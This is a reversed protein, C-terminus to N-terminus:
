RVILIKDYLKAMLFNKRAEENVLFKGEGQSQPGTSAALRDGLGAAEQGWVELFQGFQHAQREAALRATAEDEGM